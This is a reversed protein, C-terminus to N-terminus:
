LYAEMIETLRVASDEFDEAGHDVGMSITWGSTHRQVSPPGVIGLFRWL